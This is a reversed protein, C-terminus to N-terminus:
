KTRDDGKLFDRLGAAFKNLDLGRNVAIEQVRFYNIGTPLRICRQQGENCPFSHDCEGCGTWSLKTPNMQYFNGKFPTTQKEPPNNKTYLPVWVPKNDWKLAKLEPPIDVRFQVGHGTSCMWAVPKDLANQIDRYDRELANQLRDAKTM